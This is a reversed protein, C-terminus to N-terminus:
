PVLVNIVANVFVRWQDRDQALHTWDQGEWGRERLDTGIIRGDVGGDESHDRGKLIESWFKTRM